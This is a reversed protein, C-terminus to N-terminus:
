SLDLIGEKFHKDEFTVEMAPATTWFLICVVTM